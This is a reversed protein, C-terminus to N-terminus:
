QGRWVFDPRAPVFALHVPIQQNLFRVLVTSEGAKECTVAGAPSVKVAHNNPEYVAFRTVDRERGDSFTAVAHLAVTNAPEILIQERPTVTLKKLTPANRNDDGGSRLWALFAAYEPSEPGFRQGGEHAVSGTAKLLILSTEPELLNVRRGGQERAIAQWDLDPDQGRLSLKFGGKGSGNGHCGGLNCGAKSLVPMVDTRFYVPEAAPSAALLLASVCAGWLAYPLPSRM